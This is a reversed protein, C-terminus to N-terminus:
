TRMKRFSRRLRDASIGNKEKNDMGIIIVRKIDRKTMGRSDEGLKAAITSGLDEEDIAELVEEVTDKEEALRRVWETCM